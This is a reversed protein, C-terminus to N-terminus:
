AQQFVRPLDRRADKLRSYEARKVGDVLLSYWTSSSYQNSRGKLLGREVGDVIVLWSAPRDATYLVYSKERPAAKKLVIDM